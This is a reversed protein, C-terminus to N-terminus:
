HRPLRFRAEGAIPLEKDFSVPSLHTLAAEADKV